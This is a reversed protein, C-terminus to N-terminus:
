RHRVMKQGTRYRHAPLNVSKQGKEHALSFCKTFVWGRCITLKATATTERQECHMYFTRIRQELDKLAYLTGSDRM